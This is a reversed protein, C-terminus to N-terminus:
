KIPEVLYLNQTLPDTSPQTDVRVGETQSRRYFHCSQFLRTHPEIKGRLCLSM